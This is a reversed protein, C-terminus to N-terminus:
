AFVRRGSAVESGLHSRSVKSLTASFDDCRTPPLRSGRDLTECGRVDVNSDEVGLMVLVEDIALGCGPVVLNRLGQRNLSWPVSTGIPASRGPLRSDVVIGVAPDMAVALPDEVPTKAWRFVRRDM